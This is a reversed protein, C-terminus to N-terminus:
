EIAATYDKPISIGYQYMLGLDFQASTDGQAALVKTENFSLGFDDEEFAMLGVVYDPFIITKTKDISVTNRFIQSLLFM